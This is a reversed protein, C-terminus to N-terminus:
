CVSSLNSLLCIKSKNSLFVFQASTQCCVFRTITTCCVIVSGRNQIDFGRMELSTKVGQEDWGVPIVM